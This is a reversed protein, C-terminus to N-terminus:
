RVTFDGVCDDALCKRNQLFKKQADQVFSDAKLLKSLSKAHPQQTIGIKGAHNIKASSGRNVCSIWVLKSLANIELCCFICAFIGNGNIKTKLTVFVFAFPLCGIQM